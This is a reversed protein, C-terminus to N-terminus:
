IKIYWPWALSIPRTETSGTSQITIGTPNISTNFGHNHVGDTGIGIGTFANATINTANVSRPAGAGAGAANVDNTGWVHNHGPDTVPHNHLGGDNTTGNHNHGGDNVGHNHSTFASAQLSGFARSPDVGLSEDLGRLFMGRMDPLRFTTAGDGVSFRGRLGAGGYFDSDAILGSAQAFAFLNAYTTRSVLQGNLKLWGNPTSTTAFPASMGTMWMSLGTASGDRIQAIFSLAYRIANDLTSPLDTAGDPGNLAENVNCGALTTVIPM